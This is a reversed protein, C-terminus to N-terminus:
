DPRRQVKQKFYIKQIPIRLKLTKFNNQTLFEFMKLKDFCIDVIESESIFCLVGLDKFDEKHKSIYALEPDILSIIGKINEKM